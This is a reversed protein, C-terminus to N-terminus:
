ARRPLCTPAMPERRPIIAVDEFGTVIVPADFALEFAGQAFATSPALALTLLLPAIRM